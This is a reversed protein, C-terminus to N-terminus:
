DGLPPAKLIVTGPDSGLTSWAFGDIAAISDLGHDSTDWIAIRLKMIEGGVVNGRTELWGTGGGQLSNDDCIGDDPTDLGTDKLQEISKCTHIEPNNIDVACGITGNICQTFLGTDGSALNVGVPFKMTTNPPTFFALNRDAPNAPDGAYTSDLLVVFFDNFRSCTYEPFESSLFNTKLTFSRANKPVKVELTLMVPDNANNNNAKPCGPANPLQGGNAMLFDAPVKSTTGNSGADQFDQYAPKVDGRAAAAGTSLLALAGGGQPLVGAGFKPRIAHSKLAPAGTGDALTLQASIVGWKVDTRTAQQCLDIAKAFDLGALSDSALGSDCAAAVNDVAGDCDDDVGNNPVEFNGPDCQAIPLPDDDGDGDDGDGRTKTPGCAILLAGACFCIAGRMMTTGETSPLM